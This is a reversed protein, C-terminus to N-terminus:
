AEGKEEKILKYIHRGGLGELNDFASLAYMNVSEINEIWNFFEEIGDELTNGLYKGFGKSDIGKCYYDMYSWGIFAVPTGLLMAEYASIGGLGIFMDSKLLMNIFENPKESINIRSDDKCIWKIYKIREVSFKPGIVIDFNINQFDRKRILNLLGETYMGPDAGGFSVLIRNIKKREKYILPKSKLIGKRAAYYQGGSYINTKNTSLLNQEFIDSNIWIDPEIININVDNIQVLLAGKFSRYFARDSEDLNVIDTIIASINSHLNLTKMFSRAKNRGEFFELKNKSDSNIISGLLDESCEYIGVVAELDNIQEQISFARIINGIGVTENGAAHIIIM